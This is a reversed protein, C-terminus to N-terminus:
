IEVETVASLVTFPLPDSSIITTYNEENFGGHTARRNEDTDQSETSYTAEIDTLYEIGGYETGASGNLSRIYRVAVSTARKIKTQLAGPVQPVALRMSRVKMIFPLGVQYTFITSSVTVSGSSVVETGVVSGGSTVFVTEGELHDLGTITTIGGVTVQRVFGDTITETFQILTAGGSTTALKFSDDGKDSVFYNADLWSVYIKDTNSYGHNPIYLILDPM